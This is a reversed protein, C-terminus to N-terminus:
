LAGLYWELAAEQGPAGLAGFASTVDEALTATRSDNYGWRKALAALAAEANACTKPDDRRLLQLLGPVADTDLSAVKEVWAARDEDGARALGRLYYWGIIPARQWWALAAVAGLLIVFATLKKRAGSLSRRM